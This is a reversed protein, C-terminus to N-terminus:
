LVVGIPSFYSLIAALILIGIEIGRGIRFKEFCAVILGIALGVPLANIYWLPVGLRIWILGLVFFLTFKLFFHSYVRQNKYIERVANKRTLKTKGKVERRRGRTTRKKFWLKQRSIRKM